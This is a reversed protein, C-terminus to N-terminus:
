ESLFSNKSLFRKEQELVESVSPFGLLWHESALSSVNWGPHEPLRKRLFLHQEPGPLSFALGLTQSRSRPVTHSRKVRATRGAQQM